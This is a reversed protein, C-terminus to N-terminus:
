VNRPIRDLRRGVLALLARAENPSESTWAAVVAVKIDDDAAALGAAAAEEPLGTLERVIGVARARLKRNTPRMEVMLGRYVWGCELACVNSARQLVLHTATAAKLRTSGALLEPGTAVVVSVLEPDPPIATACATVFARRCACTRAFRLASQVFAAAGSASLGVVLDSCALGLDGLVREAEEASDEAGEVARRLAVDGGAVVAILRARPFGFTPEWEAADLAGLRGSTGAGVYVIRGGDAVAGAMARGLALISPRSARVAASVVADEVEFHELLSEATLDANACTAPHPGETPLATHPRGIRPTTM